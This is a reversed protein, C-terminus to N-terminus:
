VRREESRENKKARGAQSIEVALRVANVGSASGAMMRTVVEVNDLALDRASAYYTPSDVGLILFRRLRAMDDLAFVYGGASNEVQDARAPRSQPTSRAGGLSRLVDAM